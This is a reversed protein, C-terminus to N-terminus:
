FYVKVYYRKSLEEIFAKYRKEEDEARLKVEIRKAVEDSFTAAGGGERGLVQVFVVGAATKVPASVENPKLTSVAPALTKDMEEALLWGVDGGKKANPGESHERALDAFATGAALKGQIAKATEDLKGAAAGDQRLLIMALHVRNQQAFDARHKQFYDQVAVPSVHVARRVLQDVLLDVAAMKHVKKEFDDWTMSRSFLLQEFRERSGGAQQLLISDRRKALYDPPLKYEKEKFEAYLLETEVMKRGVDRRLDEVKKALEAGSYKQELQQEIPRTEELIDSVTIIEDCVQAAIADTYTRDAAGLPPLVALSAATLLLVLHRHM